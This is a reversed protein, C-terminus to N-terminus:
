AESLFPSLHLRRNALLSAEEDRGATWTAEWGKKPRKASTHLLRPHRRPLYSLLKNVWWWWGRGGGRDETLHSSQPPWQVSSHLASPRIRSPLFKGELPLALPRTIVTLLPTHGGLTRAAGSLGSAAWRPFLQDSRCQSMWGGRTPRWHCQQRINTQYNTFNM